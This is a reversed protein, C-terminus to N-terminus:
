LFGKLILYFRENKAHSIHVKLFFFLGLDYVLNFGLQVVKESLSLSLSLILACLNAM